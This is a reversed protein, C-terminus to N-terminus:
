NEEETNAAYGIAAAAIVSLGLMKKSIGSNVHEFGGMTTVGDVIMWDVTGDVSQISEAAVFVHTETFSAAWLPRSIPTSGLGTQTLDLVTGENLVIRCPRRVIAMTAKCGIDSRPKKANSKFM